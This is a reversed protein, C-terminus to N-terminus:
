YTCTSNSDLVNLWEQRIEEITAKDENTSTALRFFCPLFKNIMTEFLATLEHHTVDVQSVSSGSSSGGHAMSGSSGVSAAALGHHHQHSHSQQQQQTFKRISLQNWLKLCKRRNSVLFEHDMGKWRDRLYSTIRENYECAVCYFPTAEELRSSEM